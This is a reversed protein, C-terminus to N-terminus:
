VPCNVERCECICLTDNKVSRPISPPRKTPTFILGTSAPLEGDSETSSESSIVVMAPAHSIVGGCPWPAHAHSIERDLDVTWIKCTGVASHMISGATGKICGRM